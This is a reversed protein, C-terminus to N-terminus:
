GTGTGARTSDEFLRRAQEAKREEETWDIAAQGLVRGGEDSAVVAAPRHGRVHESDRTTYAFFGADIPEPRLPIAAAHATRGRLRAGPARRRAPLDPRGPRRGVAPRRRALRLARGPAGRRRALPRVRRRPGEVLYCFSAADAPAVWVRRGGVSGAVRTKAADAGPDMGEPAGSGVEAFDLKVVTSAHPAETFAVDDRFLDLIATHLGLAPAALLVAALLALGLALAHPRRRPAPREPLRARLVVGEWDLPEEDPRPVLEELAHLLARKNM